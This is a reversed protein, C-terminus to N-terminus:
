LLISELYCNFFIMGKFRVHSEDYSFVDHYHIFLSSKSNFTFRKRSCGQLKAILKSLVGKPCICQFLLIHHDFINHSEKGRFQKRLMFHKEASSHIV